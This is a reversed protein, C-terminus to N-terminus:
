HAHNLALLGGGGLTQFYIHLAICIVVVNQIEMELHIVKCKLFLSNCLNNVILLFAIISGLAFKVQM